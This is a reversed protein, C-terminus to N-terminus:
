SIVGAVGRGWELVDIRVQTRGATIFGLQQAARRSVDLVPRRAAAGFPGRDVVKVNVSKNNALNTVRLLTGFPYARHAAVMQNQRFPIGSATRRGEFYDAYFTADGTVRELVVDSLRERVPEPVDDPRSDGDPRPEPLPEDGLRPHQEQLAAIVEEDLVAPGTETSEEAADPACGMTLLILVATSAILGKM